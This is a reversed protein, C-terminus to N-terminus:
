IKDDPDAEKSRRAVMFVIDAPPDALMPSVFACRLLLNLYTLHEVARLLRLSMPGKIEGSDTHRMVDEFNLRNPKM